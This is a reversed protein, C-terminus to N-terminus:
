WHGGQTVNVVPTADSVVSVSPSDFETVTINASSENQIVIREAM